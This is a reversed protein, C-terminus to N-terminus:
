IKDTIIEHIKSSQQYTCTQKSKKKKSFKTRKDNQLTRRVYHEVSLIGQESTLKNILITVVVKETLTQM